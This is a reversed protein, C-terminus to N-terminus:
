SFLFTDAADAPKVGDMHPIVRECEARVHQPLYDEGFAMVGSIEAVENLTEDSVLLGKCINLFSIDCIFINAQCSYSNNVLVLFTQFNTKFKADTRACNIFCYTRYNVYWM